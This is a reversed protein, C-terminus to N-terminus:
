KTNSCLWNVINHYNWAFLLLVWDDMYIYGNEGLSGEWGPQWMLNLLTAQAIPYTRSIINQSKFFYRKNPFHFHIINEDCSTPFFYEYIDHINNQLFSESDDQSYSLDIFFLFQSLILWRRPVTENSSEVEGSRISIIHYLKILLYLIIAVVM